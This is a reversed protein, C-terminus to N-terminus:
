VYHNKQADSSHEFLRAQILRFFLCFGGLWQRSFRFTRILCSLLFPSKIRRYHSANPRINPLEGTFVSLSQDRAQNNHHGQSTHNNSCFAPVPSLNGSEIFDLNNFVSTISRRYFNRRPYITHLNYPYSIPREGRMTIKLTDRYRVAHRADPIIREPIAAAECADRNRIAHRANAIRHEVTATAERADRNRITHRSNAIRREVTASAECANRNRCHSSYRRM